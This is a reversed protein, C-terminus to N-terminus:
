SWWSLEIPDFGPAAGLLCDARDCGGDQRRGIVHKFVARVVLIGAGIVERLHQQDANGALDACSRDLADQTPRRNRAKSKGITGVKTLVNRGLRLLKHVTAM